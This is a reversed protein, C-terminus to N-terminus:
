ENTDGKIENIYNDIQRLTDEDFLEPQRRAVYAVALIELVHESPSRYEETLDVKEEWWGNKDTHMVARRVGDPTHPYKDSM